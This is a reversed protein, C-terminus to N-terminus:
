YRAGVPGSSFKWNAKLMVEGTEVRVDRSTPAFTFGIAALALPAATPLLGASFTQTGYWTYRGEVGVTFNDTVAHEVGAGITGGVLNKTQSTIVGPFIGIPTWNTNATVDTFAVGGTAYLLTRDWAYGIRGRVSAQWTSRLEFTDGPIFLAPLVGVLTQTRKWNQADADGEIGVVLRGTQWNCGIQGGGIFTSSNASGLDLTSAATPGAFGTAAPINVVDGTRAWKGGLNGGIYCGTWNYAVVVPLPRAKVAMDAASAAGLGGLSVASALVLAIGSRM